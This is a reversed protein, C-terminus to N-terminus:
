LIKFCFFRPFDVIKSRRAHKKTYICPNKVYLFILDVDYLAFFPPTLTKSMYKWSHKKPVFYMIRGRAFYTGFRSHIDMCIKAYKLNFFRLFDPFRFISGQKISSKSKQFSSCGNFNWRKLRKMYPYEYYVSLFFTYNISWNKVMKQWSPFRQLWQTEAMTLIKLCNNKVSWFISIYPFTWFTKIHNITYM